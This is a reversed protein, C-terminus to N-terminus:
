RPTDRASRRRDLLDKERDPRLRPRQRTTHRPHQPSRRSLVAHRPIDSTHGDEARAVVDGSSRHPFHISTVPPSM